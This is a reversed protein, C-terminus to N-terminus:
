YYDGPQVEVQASSKEIEGNKEKHKLQRLLENFEATKSLDAESGGHQRPTTSSSVSRKSEHQQLQQLDIKLGNYSENPFSGHARTIPSPMKINAAAKFSNVSSTSCTSPVRSQDSGTM